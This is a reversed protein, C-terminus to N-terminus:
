VEVKEREALLLSQPISWEPINFELPNPVSPWLDTDRCEVYLRLLETREHRGVLCALESLPAALVCFPLSTEHAIIWPTLREETLKEWGAQYHCLQRHYAYEGIANQFKFLKAAGKVDAIIKLNAAVKDLRAKCRVTALEGDAVEIEEDWVISVEVPGDDNLIRHSEPNAALQQVLAFQAEYQEPDIITQDCHIEAFAAERTKVYNTTRATSPEGSATANLKDNRYDPQVIYRKGFAEPELAGCHYLECLKQNNTSESSLGDRFHRPSKKLLSLKSNSIAQWRDYDAFGVNEYIGPEPATTTMACLM